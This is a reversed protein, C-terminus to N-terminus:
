IHKACMCYRSIIKNVDNNLIKYNGESKSRNERYFYSKTGLAVMCGSGAMLCAILGIIALRKRGLRGRIVKEHRLETHDTNEESAKNDESEEVTDEEPNEKIREKQIRAWIKEFEDSLTEKRPLPVKLRCAAEFEDLLEEDSCGIIGMNRSGIFKDHESKKNYDVM